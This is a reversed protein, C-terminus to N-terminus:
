SCLLEFCSSRWHLNDVIKIPYQLDLVKTVIWFKKPLVIKLYFLYYQNFCNCCLTYRHQVIFDEVRILKISLLIFIPREQVCVVEFLLLKIHKM